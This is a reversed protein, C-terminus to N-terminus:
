DYEKMLEEKQTQTQLGNCRSWIKNHINKRLALPELRLDSTFKPIM